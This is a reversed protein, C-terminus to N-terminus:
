AHRKRVMIYLTLLFNILVAVALVLVLDFARKASDLADQHVDSSVFSQGEMNLTEASGGLMTSGDESGVPDVVAVPVPRYEDLTYDGDNLLSLEVLEEATITGDSRKDQLELSRAIDVSLVSGASPDTDSGSQALTVVPLLLITLVLINLFLKM